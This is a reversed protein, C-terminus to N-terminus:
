NARMEAPIPHGMAKAYESEYLDNSPFEQTLQRLLKRALENKKERREASFFLRRRAPM